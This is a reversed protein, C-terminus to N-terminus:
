SYVTYLCAGFVFPKSDQMDEMQHVDSTLEVETSANKRQKGKTYKLPTQQEPYICCWRLNPRSKNDLMSMLMIYFPHLPSFSYNKHFFEGM